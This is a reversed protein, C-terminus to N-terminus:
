LGSMFQGGAVLLYLRRLTGQFYPTDDISTATMWANEYNDIKAQSIAIGSDAFAGIFASNKDFPVSTVGGKGDVYAGIKGLFTKAEPTCFWMYDVAIRWPTRCADYGYTSGYWQTGNTADAWDPVLGSLAPIAQLEALLTYTDTALQKWFAANATDVQAWVRYYGPAFYSPDVKGKNNQDSCGGYMDGARLVTLGNSCSDTEYQKIKGILGVAATKYGGWNKDAVVLAMAADVDGDAASNANNNGPADCLGTAWNMLGNKDAHDQYYQWLRKFLTQDNNNAALLMGYGIGESVVSGGDKVVVSSGAGGGNTCSQVFKTTWATYEAARRSAADSSFFATACMGASTSGGSGTAGGNGTSGGSSTAGGSNTAGGNSTAGGDGTRGGNGTVGGSSTTGGNGTRGGSSTAGGNSSAGGNGTSGGSSTTGGNGTTGGTATNGGNSGGGSTSSGCAVFLAFILPACKPLSLPKSM